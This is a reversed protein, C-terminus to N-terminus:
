HRSTHRRSLDDVTSQWFEAVIRDVNAFESVSNDRATERSSLVLDQSLQSKWAKRAKTVENTNRFAAALAPLDRIGQSAYGRYGREREFKDAILDAVRGRDVQERLDRAILALDAYHKSFRKATWALFKEAALENVSLAKVPFRNRGALMACYFLAPPAPDLQETTRFSVSVTLRGKNGVGRAKITFPVRTGKFIDDDVEWHGQDPLITMVDTRVTLLEKIKPINLEPDPSHALDIDKFSMRPSNYVHHLLTGGKLVFREATLETTALYRVLAARAVILLAQEGPIGSEDTFANILEQTTVPEQTM